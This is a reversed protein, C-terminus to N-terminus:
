LKPFVPQNQCKDASYAEVVSSIGTPDLISIALKVGEIGTEALAQNLIVHRLWARAITVYRSDSTPPNSSIQLERLMENIIRSDVTAIFDKNVSEISATAVNEIALVTFEGIDLSTTAAKIGAKVAKVAVKIKSAAGLTLVNAIIEFPALTKKIINKACQGPSSACM